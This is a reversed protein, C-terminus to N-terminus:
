LKFMDSLGSLIVSQNKKAINILNNEFGSKSFIIYHKEDFGEFLSAKRQLEDLVATGTKTNKWKCEGFIAKNSDVAIIDIEEQTHTKPNSGWWRGISKFSVPMNGKKQMIWMYQKSAEEFAYGIHSSLQGEFVEKCAAEGLGANIRSQEPLVFRYWFKFMLDSLAYITKKSSTKIVPVEKKIIGLSVLTSLMKSAQSTELKAKTAIENLKSSGMAIASIIANYTEPMKLEQKLLNAPEEFLRGTPNFFLENTNEFVTLKSDIRSLYEPIGGTIGYLTLKEEHTYSPHMKASTLYDFPYIKLQGTRRGYLPSEYGLVQREMFSMSSGCLILFLRSKAQYKDITAQLISSVSKESNALYPYEDIVFVIRENKAKEFVYEVASDFSGFPNKPAEPALAPLIQNSLLRLNERITSEIAVFYVAKKGRIFENILTTKGVRRRGYIVTFRFSDKNYSGQLGALEAERGVFMIAEEIVLQPTLKAQTKLQTLVMEASMEVTGSNIANDWIM